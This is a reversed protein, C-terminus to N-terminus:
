RGFRPSTGLIGVQHCFHYEKYWTHSNKTAETSHHVPKASTNPVRVHSEFLGVCFNFFFQHQKPLLVQMELLSNLLMLWLLCYYCLHTVDVSGLQTCATLSSQLYEARVPRLLVISSIPFPSQLMYSEFSTKGDTWDTGSKPSFATGESLPHLGSSSTDNSHPWRSLTQPVIAAVTVFFRETERVQRGQLIGREM